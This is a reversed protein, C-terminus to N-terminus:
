VESQDKTVDNAGKGPATAVEVKFLGSDELAKKLLPTTARWNHNNQGDLILAKM